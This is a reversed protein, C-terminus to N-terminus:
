PLSEKLNLMDGRARLTAWRNWLIEGEGAPAAIQQLTTGSLREVTSSAPGRRQEIRAPIEPVIVEPATTVLKPNIAPRSRATRCHFPHSQIARGLLARPLDL